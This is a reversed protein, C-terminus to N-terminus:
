ERVTCYVTIGRRKAVDLNSSLRKAASSARIFSASRVVRSQAAQLLEGVEVPKSITGEFPPLQVATVPSATASSTTSVNESSVVCGAVASSSTVQVLGSVIADSGASLVSSLGIGGNPAIGVATNMALACRASRADSRSPTTNTSSAPVLPPLAAFMAAVTPPVVMVAVSEIPAPGTPSAVRPM